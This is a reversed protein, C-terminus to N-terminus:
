RYNTTGSKVHAGNTYELDRGHVHIIKERVTSYIIKHPIHQVESRETGRGLFPEVNRNLDHISLQDKQQEPEAEWPRQEPCVQSGPAPETERM